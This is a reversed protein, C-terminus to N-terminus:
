SAYVGQYGLGSGPRRTYLVHGFLADPERRHPVTAPRPSIEGRPQLFPLRQNESGPEPLSQQLTRLHHRAEPRRRSVGRPRNKPPRPNSHQIPHPRPQLPLPLLPAPSPHFRHRPNPRKLRDTIMVNTKVERSSFFTSLHFLPM